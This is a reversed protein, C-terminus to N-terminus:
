PHPHCANLLPVAASEKSLILTNGLRMGDINCLIETWAWKWASPSDVPEANQGNPSDKHFNCKGGKSCVYEKNLVVTRRFFASCAACAEAGFHIGTSDARCISCRPVKPLSKDVYEASETDTITTATTKPRKKSSSSDLDNCEVSLSGAPNINGHHQFANSDSMFQRAQMAVVAYAAQFQQNSVQPQTFSAPFMAQQQYNAQSVGMSSGLHSAGFNCNNLHNFSPNLCLEDSYNLHDLLGSDPCRPSRMMDFTAKYGAAATATPKAQQPECELISGNQPPMKALLHAAAACAVQAQANPVPMYASANSNAGISSNTDDVSGSSANSNASGISNLNSASPSRIEANSGFSNRKGFNIMSLNASCTPLSSTTDNSNVAAAAAASSLFATMM